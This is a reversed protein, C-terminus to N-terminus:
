LDNYGCFLAFVADFWAFLVLDVLLCVVVPVYLLTSLCSVLGLCVNYWVLCGLFCTYCSASSVLVILALGVIFCVVFVVCLWCVAIM